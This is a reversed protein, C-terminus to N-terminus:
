KKRSMFDIDDKCDSEVLLKALGQGKVLKTPKIKLDFDLSKAIWNSRKGDIDSRILIEKVSASPIYAVIKSHLVSIRFAKLDKVLAYSKKEMIDYRM